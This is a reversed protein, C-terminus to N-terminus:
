DTLAIVPAFGGGPARFNTTRGQHLRAAALPVEGARAQLVPVPPQAWLAEANEASVLRSRPIRALAQRDAQSAGFADLKASDGIM